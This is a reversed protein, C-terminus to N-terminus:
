LLPPHTFPSVISPSCFILSFWTILSFFSSRQVSFSLIVWPHRQWFLGQALSSTHSLLPRWGWPGTSWKIESTRSQFPCGQSLGSSCHSYSFPFPTSPARLSPFSLLPCRLPPLTAVPSGLHSLPLSGEQWHLLCSNSGQAPFIGQLPFHCGVGTNEGLLDWLCLLRAPWLGHPWLLTLCSEAVSLTAVAACPLHATGPPPVQVHPEM